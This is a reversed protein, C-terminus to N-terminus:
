TWILKIKRVVYIDFFLIMGRLICVNFKLFFICIEYKWNFFWYLLRIIMINEYILLNLVRYM